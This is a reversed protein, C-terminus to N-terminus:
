LGFNANTDVTITGNAFGVGFNFLEAVAKMQYYTHGDITYAKLPVEKGDLYIKAKTEVPTKAATGKPSLAGDQTGGSTLNIAGLNGDWAASFRKSSDKISRAIDAIQYYTQGSITYADFDVVGGNVQVKASTPTAALSPAPTAPAPTAPAVTGGSVKAATNYVTIGAHQTSVVIEYVGNGDIDALTPQGYAGNGLNAGTDRTKTLATKQLLNGNSDLVYIFGDTSTNPQTYDYFSTFVVEKKGDGNLDVTVPRSAYQYLADAKTSVTYPWNGHETGDLSFCHLKGNYSAFLIESAGDGDLDSVIPKNYVLSNLSEANQKLPEGLNKPVVSWDYGKAQNIYRTGDGNRIFLSMYETPPYFPNGAKSWEIRHDVVIGSTIVELKGDGDVDAVTNGAQGLQMWLSAEDSTVPFPVGQATAWDQHKGAFSWGENGPNQEYAYNEYFPIQGWYLGPYVDQNALVLSGTPDFVMMYANDVPVLIELKADGTINALQIGDQYIGDPEFARNKSGKAINIQEQTVQPWGPRLVGNYEYVYTTLPVGSDIGKGVVIEAKGNLDIDAVQISNVQGPAPVTIPWGPKNNGYCDLVSVVRNTHASIIELKGDGDIDVVKIDARVPGFTDFYTPTQDVSTLLESGSKRWKLDGTAADLVTVSTAAFVIEQKGDGDIDAVVPSISYKVDEAGGQDVYVGNVMGSWWHFTGANEYRLTLLDAANANLPAILTFSLAVACTLALSLFRKLM